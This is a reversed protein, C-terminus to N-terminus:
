PVETTAPEPATTAPPETPLPETTPPLPETTPPLEETSVPPPETVTPLPTTDPATTPQTEPPATTAPETETETSGTTTEPPASTPTTESSSGTPLPVSLEGTSGAPTSDGSTVLIAAGVGAALLAIAAALALPGLRIGRRGGRASRQILTPEEAESVPAVARIRELLEASSPGAALAETAVPGLAPAPAALRTLIEGFAKVDDAPEGTPGFGTVKARGEGDLFVSAASLSGHAVGREHAHALAAAIGAAIAHAEAEDLGPLREELSGGTLYELVVYREGDAEGQDFVRAVNPHDLLAAASTEQAPRVLVERGLDTDLARWGSGVRELLEYRGALTQREM